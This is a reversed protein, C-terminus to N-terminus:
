VNMLRYDEDMLFPTAMIVIITDTRRFLVFDNLLTFFIVMLQIYRDISLRFYMYVLISMATHELYVRVYLEALSVDVFICSYFLMM